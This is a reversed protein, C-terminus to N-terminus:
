LSVRRLRLSNLVVSISSASMAFAAFVAWTMRGSPV